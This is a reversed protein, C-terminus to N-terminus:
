LGTRKKTLTRAISGAGKRTFGQAKATRYYGKLHQAKKLRNRQGEGSRTSLPGFHRAQAKSM